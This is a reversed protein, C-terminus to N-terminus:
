TKKKDDLVGGIPGGLIVGVSAGIAALLSGYSLRAASTSVTGGGGEDGSATFQFSGLGAGAIVVAVPSM